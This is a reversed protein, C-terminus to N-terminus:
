SCCQCRRRTTRGEAVPESKASRDSSDTGVTFDPKTKVAPSKAVPGAPAFVPASTTVPATAPAKKGCPSAYGAKRACGGRFSILQKLNFLFPLEVTITAIVTGIDVEEGEPTVITLVGSKEAELETSVKDTELTVLIDGM